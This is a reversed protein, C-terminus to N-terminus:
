SANKINNKVDGFAAQAKGNTNQIRGKIELNKNGVVKGAVEKVKGKAEEIRGHTQDKNMLIELFHTEIVNPLTSGALWREQPLSYDIFRALETRYRGYNKRSVV